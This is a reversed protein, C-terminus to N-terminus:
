DQRQEFLEHATNLHRFEEMAELQNTGKQMNQNILSFAEMVQAYALAEEQREQYMQYQFVLATMAMFLAFVAAMKLWQPGISKSAPKKIQKPEEEKLMDLEGFFEKEVSFLDSTKLLGKLEKEEALSSEGAWYKELLFEIREAM